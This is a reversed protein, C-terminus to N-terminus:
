GSERGQGGKGRRWADLEVVRAVRGTCGCFPCAVREGLLREAMALLGPWVVLLWDVEETRRPADDAEAVIQEAAVQLPGEQAECRHDGVRQARRLERREAEEDRHQERGEPSRRYKKRAKRVCERRAQLSCKESCYCRGPECGRCFSFPEDCWECPM